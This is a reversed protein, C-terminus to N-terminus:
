FTLPHTPAKMHCWIVTVNRCAPSDHYRTASERWGITAYELGGDFVNNYTVIYQTEDVYDTGAIIKDAIAKNITGM